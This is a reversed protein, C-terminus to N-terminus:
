DEERPAASPAGVEVYTSTLKAMSTLKGDCSLDDDIIHHQM